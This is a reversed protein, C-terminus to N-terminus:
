KKKAWCWGFLEGGDEKLEIITTKNITDKTQQSFSDDKDFSIFIQKGSQEYLDILKDITSDSINKLIHSDHCLSPLDTLHLISLDYVIMGKFNTGAGKDSPTAFKYNPKGSKTDSFEIQPPYHTGDFIYDNLESMKENIKEQVVSLVKERAAELEEKSKKIDDKLEQSDLFKDNQTQLSEIQRQIAVYKQLYSQSVKVPVGLKRQKTELDSINTSIISIEKQIEDLEETMENNLIKSLNNHYNEIKSIKDLNVNPFFNSLEYFDEKTPVLAGSMNAKISNQKSILRNRKRRLNTIQSKIASIQDAKEVDLNTINTDEQDTLEASQKRLEEITKQNIQFQKQTIQKPLEGIDVAKKIIKKREDKEMFVKKANAISGYVGFLKELAAIAQDKSENGNRLPFREEYNDKGYIRFYRGILERFSGYENNMQYSDQLYSTFDEIKITDIINYNSDCRNVIKGDETSRSFYRIDDDFKFAFKIVHNGIHEVADSIEKNLYSEGGFCFDVILLFTSKGISNEGTKDGLVTNLGNLFRIKGRPQEVGNKNIVFKDCEIEYLM